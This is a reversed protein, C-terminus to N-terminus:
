APLAEGILIIRPSDTTYRDLDYSGYTQRLGFGAQRLLLEAEPRYLYRLRLRAVTRSVSGDRANVEYTLSLELIQEGPDDWAATTRTLTSGQCAGQFAQRLEGSAGRDAMSHPNALDIVIMGGPRLHRHASWLMELQGEPETAHWLTNVPLLAAASKHSLAVDAATSQVLHANERGRLRERAKALMGGSPEIGWVELGANALREMIRGTGSGIELVPGEHILNLYLDIDDHFASHECDYYSAIEDYENM